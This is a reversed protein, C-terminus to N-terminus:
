KELPQIFFADNLLATSSLHLLLLLAMNIIIFATEVTPFTFTFNADGYNDGQIILNKYIPDIAIGCLAIPIM